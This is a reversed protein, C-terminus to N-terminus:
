LGQSAAIKTRATLSRERVSELFKEFDDESNARRLDHFCLLICHLV